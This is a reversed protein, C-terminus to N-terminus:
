KNCAALPRALLGLLGLISLTYESIDNNPERSFTSRDAVSIEINTPIIVGSATRLGHFLDGPKNHFRKEFNIQQQKQRQLDTAFQTIM